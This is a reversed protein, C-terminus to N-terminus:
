SLSLPPSTPSPPPPVPLANPPHSPPWPLGKLSCKREIPAPSYPTLPPLPPPPPPPPPSRGSLKFSRRAHRIVSGDDDVDDVVDDDPRFRVGVGVGVGVTGVSAVSGVSGVSEVSGAGGGAGSSTPPSSAPPSPPAAKSLSSSLALSPESPAIGPLPDDNLPEKRSPVFESM